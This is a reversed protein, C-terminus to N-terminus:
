GSCEAHYQASKPFQPPDSPKGFTAYLPAGMLIRVQLRSEPFQSWFNLCKPTYFYQGWGLM